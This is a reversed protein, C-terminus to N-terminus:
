QQAYTADIAFASGGGPFLQFLLNTWSFLSTAIWLQPNVGPNEEISKVRTSEDSWQSMDISALAIIKHLPACLQLHSTDVTRGYALSFYRVDGSVTAGCMM